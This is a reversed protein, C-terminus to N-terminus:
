GWYVFKSVVRYAGKKWEFDVSAVGDVSDPVPWDITLMRDETDRLEFQTTGKTDAIARVEALTLGKKVQRFEGHTMKNRTQEPGDMWMALKGDVVWVGDKKVFDLMVIGDASTTATWSRVQHRAGDYSDLDLQTGRSDFREKVVAITEGLKTAAFEKRDVQPSDDASAATAGTLAIAVGAFAATIVRLKM